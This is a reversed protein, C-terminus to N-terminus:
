KNAWKRLSGAMNASVTSAVDCWEQQVTLIQM